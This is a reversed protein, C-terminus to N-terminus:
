ADNQGDSELDIINSDLFDLHKLVDAYLQLLQNNNLSVLENIVQSDM